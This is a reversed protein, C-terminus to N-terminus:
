YSRILTTNFPANKKGNVTSYASVPPKLPKQSQKGM